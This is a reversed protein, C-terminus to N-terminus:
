IKFCTYEKGSPTLKSLKPTTTTSITDGFYSYRFKKRPTDYSQSDDNDKGDTKVHHNPIQDVGSSAADNADTSDYSASNSKTQIYADFHPPLVVTTNSDTNERM